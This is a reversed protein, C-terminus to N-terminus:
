ENEIEEKFYGIGNCASCKSTNPDGYQGIGTGQCTECDYYGESM